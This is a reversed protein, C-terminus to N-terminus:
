RRFFSREIRGALATLVTGMALALVATWAASYWNKELANMPSGRGFFVAPM